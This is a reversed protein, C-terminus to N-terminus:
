QQHCMVCLNMWDVRLLAARDSPHSALAGVTSDAPFVGEAHPNHCTYCTVIDSEGLPLLRPQANRPADPQLRQENALLHATTAATMPREVHGRPSVDWHREHCNLCLDASAVRLQPEFRRVGDRPAPASTHCFRCNQEDSRRVHPNYRTASADTHCQGCYDSPRLPNDYRLLARDQPQPRAEPECHQVIDHCTICGVVGGPTPFRSPTSVLTTQAPRGIPHPDAPAAVGDHCTLCLADIEDAPIPFGGARTHCATCRDARWHPNEALVAGSASTWTLRQRDATAAQLLESESVGLWAFVRVGPRNLQEAVLVYYQPQIDAPLAITTEPKQETVAIGFPMTLAGGDATAGDREGFSLLFRGDAAFAHVQQSVADTVFVVGDPGVAVDRPRGFAGPTRGPEGIDRLWRGEDGSLVQVRNNLTDVVCIEGTPTLAMGRPQAFAGADMGHQGISRRWAGSDADFLDLQHQATNSAWLADGVLVVGGYRAGDPIRYAVVRTGSADLRRLGSTDAVIIDGHPATTIAYPHTGPPAAYATELAAGQPRQVLVADLVSDCVWITGDRAALSTPHVITLAAPPDVGFLLQSLQVEANSPPAHDRLGGLALVFSRQPAPPYAVLRTRLSTARGTECGLFVLTSALAGLAAVLKVRTNRPQNARDLPKM